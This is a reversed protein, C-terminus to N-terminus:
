KSLEVGTAEMLAEMLDNLLWFMEKVSDITADPGNMADLVAQIQQRTEEVCKKDATETIAAVREEVLQDILQRIEAMTMGDYLTEGDDNVTVSVGSPDFQWRMWGIEPDEVWATKWPPNRTEVNENRTLTASYAIIWVRGPAGAGGPKPPAGANIVGPLIGQRANGGSGGAGPAAANASTLAPTVGGTYTIGQYTIKGPSAGWQLAAAVGAAGGSGCAGGNAQFSDSAGVYRLTLSSAKGNNIAAGDVPAFLQADQGVGGAGVTVTFTSQDTWSVTPVTGRVIRDTKWQGARGGVGFAALGGGQGGGGGGVMVIDLTNAWAPPTYNFSGVTSFTQSLVQGAPLVGPGITQTPDDGIPLVHINKHGPGGAYIRDGLTSVAVPFVNDPINLQGRYKKTEFDWVEIYPQGAASTTYILDGNRAVDMWASTDTVPKGTAWTVTGSFTTASLFGLSNQTGTYCTFMLSQNDQTFRMNIPIMFEIGSGSGATNFSGIVTNTKTNIRAIGSRTLKPELYSCWVEDAGPKTVLTLPLKGSGLNISSLAGTELNIVTVRDGMGGRYAHRGDGAVALQQLCIGQTQGDGGTPGLAIFNAFGVGPGTDFVRSVQNTATDVAVIYGNGADGSDGFAGGLGALAVYLMDGSPDVELHIPILVDSHDIDDTLNVNAIIADNLSNIVVLPATQVTDGDEEYVGVVLGAYVRNKSPHAIMSFCTVQDDEGFPLEIVAPEPPVPDTIEAEAEAAASVLSRSQASSVTNAVLTAWVTSTSVGSSDTGQEGGDTASGSSSASGAAAITSAVVQAWVTSASVGPSGVASEGGDTVSTGASFSGSAASTGAVINAWVTSTSVGPSDVASEGGDTVSTGASFSSSNAAVDVTVNIAKTVVSADDLYYTDGVAINNDIIIYPQFFAADGAPATMTGSFINWKGNLASSAPFTEAPYQGNPNGASNLMQSAFYILGGGGPPQVNSPSGYIWIEFKLVDGPSCPIKAGPLETQICFSNQNSGNGVFKISRLGTRAVDTSFVVASPTLDTEFSPNTAFDKLSSMFSASTADSASLYDGEAGALGASFSSSDAKLNAVISAWVTSTSVGSSGVSSEGGDTVSTGASSSGAAANVGPVISAWVTSTSSGSSGIASEGGDTVLGGLSVSGAGALLGAVLEAWATSTSVGSSGIASEGGDTVSTGVSSSGANATLGAVLEAWATSTSVGSSGIASEGGDTAVGGSSSSGAAATLDAVLEAWVTSVSVGPSLVDSSGGDTGFGSSSSSGADALLDAVVSMSVSSVSDAFGDGTVVLDPSLFSYSFAEALAAFDTIPDVTRATSYWGYPRTPWLYQYKIVVSEMM